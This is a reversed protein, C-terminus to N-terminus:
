RLLKKDALYTRGPDIWGLESLCKRGILVPNLMNDRNNLTFESLLTRDGIQFNLHVVERVEPEGGPNKIRTLRVLPAEIRIRGRDADRPATVVFRVWKRGDREFLKKEEAHISSTRAGTDLKAKLKLATKGDSVSVWERWGYIQVPDASVPLAVAAPEGGDGADAPAKSATEAAAPAEASENPAESDARASGCKFIGALCVVLLPL